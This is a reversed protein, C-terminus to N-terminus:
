AAREAAYLLHTVAADTQAARPILRTGPQVRDFLRTGSGLQRSEM